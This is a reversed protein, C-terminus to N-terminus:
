QTARTAGALRDAGARELDEALDEPTLQDLRQGAILRRHGVLHRREGGTGELEVDFAPQLGDGHEFGVSGVDRRRPSEPPVPWPFHLAFPFPPHTAEVM